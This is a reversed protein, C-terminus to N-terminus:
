KKLRERLNTQLENPTCSREDIEFRSEKLIEIILRPVDFDESVCVWMRLEFHDVVRNEDYVLKAITTKGLGGLGVIPIVSVNRNADPQKLLNIINEKDDNRGIVDSPPVFSHTMDRRGPMVHRDELRSTLNFQDKDAAIKRLKERIDKIKHGLQSHFALTTCCPFFDRVERSTCGNTRVVQQRLDECEVEELVDDAEYCIDKLRTLWRSLARNSGQKEEADSLVDKITSMTDELESLESKIDFVLSFEGYTLSGLKELIKTTIASALDPVNKVQLQHINCSM